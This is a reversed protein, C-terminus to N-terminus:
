TDGSAPNKKTLNGKCSNKPSNDGWRRNNGIYPGDSLFKRTNEFRNETKKHVETRNKRYKYGRVCGETGHNREGGCLSGSTIGIFIHLLLRFGPRGAVCLPRQPPSLPPKTVMTILRM